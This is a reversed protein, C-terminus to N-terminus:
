FFFLELQQFFYFKPANSFLPARFFPRVFIVFNRWFLEGRLTPTGRDISGFVFPTAYLCMTFLNPAWVTGGFIFCFM